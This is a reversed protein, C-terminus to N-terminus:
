SVFTQIVRYNLSQIYAVFFTKTTTINASVFLCYHSLYLLFIRWVSDGFSLLLVILILSIDVRNARQMGGERVIYEVALSQLIIYHKILLSTVRREKEGEREWEEINAYFQIFLLLSEKIKAKFDFKYCIRFAHRYEIFLCQSWILYYHPKMYMLGIPLGDVSQSKNSLFEIYTINSNM